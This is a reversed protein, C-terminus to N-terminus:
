IARGSASARQDRHMEAGMLKGRSDARRQSHERVNYPVYVRTNSYIITSTVRNQRACFVHATQTESRQFLYSVRQFKVERDDIELHFQMSINMNSILENPRTSGGVDAQGIGIVGNYGPWHIRGVRESYCGISISPSPRTECTDM